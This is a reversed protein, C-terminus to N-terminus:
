LTQAVAIYKDITTYETSEPYNTKIKQFCEEAKKGNNEMVYVMGAKFLAAPTTVFNDEMSVAKEYHKIAADNHGLELEADGQCIVAEVKTFTDKGKYSKLYNIADNYKGLRLCCIGACYKARQGSKTHAYHKAIEVFGAHQANGDLATKFDDQAFWQEAAFMEANAKENRNQSMKRLGFFALVIVLVAIIVVILKKQNKEIFFEANSIVEGM